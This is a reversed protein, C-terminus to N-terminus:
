TAVTRGDPKLPKVRTPMSLDSSGVRAMRYASRGLFRRPAPRAGARVRQGARRGSLGRAVPDSSAGADSVQLFAKLHCPIALWTNRAARAGVFERLNHSMSGTTTHRHLDPGARVPATTQLDTPPAAPYPQSVRRTRASVTRLAKHSTSSGDTPPACSCCPRGGNMDDSRQAFMSLRAAAVSADVASGAAIADYSSGAFAIAAEDSIESRMAIVAPLNRQVLCGAVGSFPDSHSARASECANLVALRLSSFDHLIMGLQDGSVPRAWDSDDEFLLVGQDANADYAGHGIYHLAHFTDARLANLLMPVTPRGLWQLEVAQATLLGALAHQLTERERDIDLQAYEAPSSIIGLLRLPPKVPLARSSRPLDLYRVVPTLASMSLFDPDDYLYKWPLGALEPSATLCLTM